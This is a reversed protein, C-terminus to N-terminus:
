DVLWGDAALAELSEYEATGTVTLEPDWINGLYVVPPPPLALPSPQALFGIEPMKGPTTHKKVPLIIVNPWRDPESMMQLDSIGENPDTAM